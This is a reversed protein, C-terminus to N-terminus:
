PPVTPVTDSASPPPPDFRITFPNSVVPVPNHYDAIKYLHFVVVFHYTGPEEPILYDSLKLTVQRPGSIYDNKEALSRVLRQYGEGMDAASAVSENILTASTLGDPLYVTPVEMQPIRFWFPNYTGDARKERIRHQDVTVPGDRLDHPILSAALPLIAFEESKSVISNYLPQSGLYDITVSIEVEEGLVTEVELPAAVLSFLKASRPPQEVSLAGAPLLVLLCLFVAYRFTM